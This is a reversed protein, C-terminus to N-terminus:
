QADKCRYFVKYEPYQLVFTTLPKGTEDNYIVFFVTCEKVDEDVCSYATEWSDQDKGRKMKSEDIFDLRIM